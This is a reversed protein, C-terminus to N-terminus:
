LLMFHCVFHFFFLLIILLELRHVAGVINLEYKIQVTDGLMNSSAMYLRKKKRKEECIAKSEWGIKCGIQTNTQRKTWWEDPLFVNWFIYRVFNLGSM